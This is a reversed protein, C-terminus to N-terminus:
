GERVDRAGAARYAALESLASVIDLYPQPIRGDQRYRVYEMILGAIREASLRYGRENEPFDPITIMNTM